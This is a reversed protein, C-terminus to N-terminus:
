RMLEEETLQSRAIQHYVECERLLDEHRGIGVIRGEDLVIIKDADKITGIRQAVIVTTVGATEKKLESRLIRDTKYDLASFSDDFIYFEPKKCVARAISVRQKQGGSLNSGGESVKGKYKGEMKEVFATGQAISLAQEVDVETREGETDGYNVNSEITGNFLVAKQPVYGIKKQLVDFKYDRVDVGDIRVKGETVDYSRLMLKVLTTKGSGTSGIIALTEGKDVEFTIETLTDRSTGPYRFSVNEFSILGAMQEPTETVEGDIISPEMTIVEDIRRLSVLARPLVVLILILLMFAIIVQMAYSSFVIMDSFETLRVELSPAESILVAGIWYIAMSLVSMVTTMVPMLFAMARTVSVHTDTLAKNSAKFKEEQYPEANYAHIVRIGTLGEKTIRNVDDNLWQIKKFRPFTFWLICGIFFIIVIVAIMTAETWEFNKTSIKMLAWGAMIPARITVMMGIIFTMQVQNVDNTSRTILSYLSFKNIEQDSFREVNEFQRKRLTKGLNTGISAGIAGVVIASILSGFACAMMPIGEAIVEDSTGGTTMIRTISTMYGPIELELYVQIFVLVVTVALLVWDIKRFHNFLMPGGRILGNNSEYQTKGILTM